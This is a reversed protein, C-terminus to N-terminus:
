RWNLMADNLQQVHIDSLNFSREIPPKGQGVGQSDKNWLFVAYCERHRRIFYKAEEVNKEDPVSVGDFNAICAGRKAPKRNGSDWNPRQRFENNSAHLELYDADKFNQYQWGEPNRAIPYKWGAERILQVMKGYAGNEYNDELGTSLVISTNINKVKDVWERINGVRTKIRKILEPNDNNLAENFQKVNWGQALEGEQCKRESSDSYRLCTQNSIHIELLHSQNKNQNLFRVACSKNNGFTGWLIAMAPKSVYRMAKFWQDCPFRENTPFASLGVFPTVDALSPVEMLAILSCVGVTRLIYKKLEQKM